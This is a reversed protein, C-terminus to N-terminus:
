SANWATLRGAGVASGSRRLPGPWSCHSSGSTAPSSSSSCGVNMRRYSRDIIGALARGLAAHVKALDAPMALLDPLTLGKAFHTESANLAAQASLHYEEADPRYKGQHSTLM